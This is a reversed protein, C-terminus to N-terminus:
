YKEQGQKQNNHMHNYSTKTVMETSVALFSFETEVPDACNLGYIGLYIKFMSYRSAFPRRM